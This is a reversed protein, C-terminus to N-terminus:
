ALLAGALEGVRSGITAFAVAKNAKLEDAVQNVGAVADMLKPLNDAAVTALDKKAKLDTVLGVLLVLVDDIEKARDVQVQIIAM